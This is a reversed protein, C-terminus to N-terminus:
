ISELYEKVEKAQLKKGNIPDAEHGPRIKVGEGWAWHLRKTFADKFELSADKPCEFTAKKLITHFWYKRNQSKSLAIM